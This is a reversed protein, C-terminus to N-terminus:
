QGYGEAMICCYLRHFREITLSTAETDPLTARTLYQEVLRDLIAHTYASEGHRQYEQTQQTEM